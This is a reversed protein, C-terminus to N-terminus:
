KLGDLISNLTASPRMVKSAKVSDPHYYGGIDQPKGQADILEANITAENEEVNFVSNLYRIQLSIDQNNNNDIVFEKSVKTRIKTEGFDLCM